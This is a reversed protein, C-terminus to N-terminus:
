LYSQMELEYVEPLPVKAQHPGFLIADHFKCLQSFSYNVPKSENNFQDPKFKMKSMFAKIVDM